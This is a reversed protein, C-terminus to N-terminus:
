GRLEKDGLYSRLTSAMCFVDYIELRALVQLSKCFCLSFSPPPLCAALHGLPANQHAETRDHLVKGLSWTLPLKRKASPLVLGLTRPKM